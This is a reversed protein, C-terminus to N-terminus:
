DNLFIGNSQFLPHTKLCRVYAWNYTKLSFNDSVKYEYIIKEMQDCFNNAVESLLVVNPQSQDLQVCSKTIMQRAWKEDEHKQKDDMVSEPYSEEKLKYYERQAMAIIMNKTAMNSTPLSRKTPNLNKQMQFRTWLPSRNERGVIFLVFLALLILTVLFFLLVKFIM